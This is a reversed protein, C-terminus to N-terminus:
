YFIRYNYTSVIIIIIYKLSIDQVIIYMNYLVNNNGFVNYMLLFLERHLRGTTPQRYTISFLINNYIIKSITNRCTSFYTSNMKTLFM